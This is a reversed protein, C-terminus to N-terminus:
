ATTWDECRLEPVQEFDVTNRSLVAFNHSLAIAAIRLDMTGIRVRHKRLDVFRRAAPEDFPLVHFRSYDIMALDIFRYGLAIEEPKTKKAIFSNAGMVQEHLSVVSVHFVEFRFQIMRQMLRSSEPESRRQMISLIDTDLIFM